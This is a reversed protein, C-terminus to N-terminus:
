KRKLMRSEVRVATIYRSWLKFFVAVQDWPCVVLLVHSWITLWEIWVALLEVWIPLLEVWIALRIHSWLIILVAIQDWPCISLNILAAFLRLRLGGLGIGFM